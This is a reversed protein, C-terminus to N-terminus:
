RPSEEVRRIQVRGPELRPEAECSIVPTLRGPPRDRCNGFVGRVISNALSVCRMSSHPMASIAVLEAASVSRM